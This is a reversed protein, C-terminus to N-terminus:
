EAETGVPLRGEVAFFQFAEPKLHGQQDLQAQVALLIAPRPSEQAKNAPLLLTCGSSPHRWVRHHKETVDGAEFGLQLLLQNLLENTLRHMM